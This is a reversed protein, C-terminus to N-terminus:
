YISCLTGVIVTYPTLFKFKVAVEFTIIKHFIIINENGYDNNTMRHNKYKGLYKNIKQICHNGNLLKSLYIM